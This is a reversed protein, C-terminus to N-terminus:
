LIAREGKPSAQVVTGNGRVLVVTALRTCASLRDVINGLITLTDDDNLWEGGESLEYLLLVRASGLPARRWVKELSKRHIAAEIDDALVKEADSGQLDTGFSKFHGSHGESFKDLRRQYEYRSADTHEIAISTNAGGLWLQFDPSDQWRLKAPFLEPRHKALHRLLMVICYRERHWNKRGESRSPVKINISTLYDTGAQGAGITIDAGGKLM